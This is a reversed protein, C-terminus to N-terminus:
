HDRQLLQRFDTFNDSIKVAYKDEMGIAPLSFIAGNENVVLLEGGGNSGFAMYGPAFEAVGYDSNYEPIRDPEWIQYWLPEISLEGEVYGEARLNEIESKLNM